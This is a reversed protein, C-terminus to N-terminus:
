PTHPAPAPLFESFLICYGDNFSFGGGPQLHVWSESHNLAVDGLSWLIPGIQSLRLRVEPSEPLPLPADTQGEEPKAPACM